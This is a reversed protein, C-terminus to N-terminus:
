LLVDDIRSTTKVRITKMAYPGTSDLLEDVTIERVIVVFYVCFVNCNKFYLWQQLVIPELLHVILYPPSKPVNQGQVFNEQGLTVFILCVTLHLGKGPRPSPSDPSISSPSIDPSDPGLSIGLYWGNSYL